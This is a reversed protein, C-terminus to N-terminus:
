IQDHVGEVRNCASGGASRRMMILVRESSPFLASTLTRSKPYRGAWQVPRLFNEIMKELFRFSHAHAQGDGTRNDLARRCAKSRFVGLTAARTEEKWKGAAWLNDILLGCLGPSGNM